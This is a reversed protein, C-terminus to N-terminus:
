MDAYFLTSVVSILVAAGICAHVFLCVFLSLRLLGDSHCLREIHSFLFLERLHPRTAVTVTTMATMTGTLLPAATSSTSHSTAPHQALCWWAVRAWLLSMVVTVSPVSNSGASPCVVDTNIHKLDAATSVGTCTLM